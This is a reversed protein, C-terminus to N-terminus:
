RVSAWIPIPVSRMRGSGTSGLFVSAPDDVVFDLGVASMLRLGASKILRERAAKQFNCCMGIHLDSSFSSPHGELEQILHSRNTPCLRRPGARAIAHPRSRHLGVGPAFAAPHRLAAQKNIGASMGLTYPGNRRVYQTRNGPNSRPLSCLAILRAMFGVEPDADRAAVLQTVQDLQTFHHRAQPTRERRAPVQISTMSGTLDQRDDQDRRESLPM